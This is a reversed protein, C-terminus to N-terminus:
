YFALDDIWLDFVANPDFNFQVSYLAQKAAAPAPYGFQRQTLSSFPVRFHRWEVDLGNLYTGFTDYCQEDSDNNDQCIGGLPESNVDSVAFRVRNTSTDGIRAWFEIGTYASADYPLNNETGDALEGYVLSVGLLSGWDSFGQGTVRMALQSDCRGGPIAEPPAIEDALPVISAGSTDDGATWWAGNRGHTIAILGDSDELDDILAAATPREDASPCQEIPKSGDPCLNGAQAESERPGDNGSASCGLAPLLVAALRFMSRLNM